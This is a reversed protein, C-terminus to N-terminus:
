RFHPSPARAVHGPTLTVDFFSAFRQPKFIAWSAIIPVGIPFGISITYYEANVNDAILALRVRAPTDKLPDLGPVYALVEPLEDYDLGLTLVHEPVTHLKARPVENDKDPITFSLLQLTRTLNPQIDVQERGGVWRVPKNVSEVGSVSAPRAAVYGPNHEIEIVLVEVNRATMRGPANTVELSVGYTFVRTQVALVPQHRRARHDPAKLAIWLAAGVGFLTAVVGAMQVIDTAQM